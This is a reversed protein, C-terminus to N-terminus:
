QFIQPQYYLDQIQFQLYYQNSYKNIPQYKGIVFRFFHFLDTTIFIRKHCTLMNSALSGGSRSLCTGFILKKKM